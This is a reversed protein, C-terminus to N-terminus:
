VHTTIGKKLIDVVMGVHHKISEETLTDNVYDDMTLKNLMELLLTALMKADIDKRIRGKEQDVVIYKAYLDIAIKMSEHYKENKLLFDSAILKKGVKVLEPYDKMFSLGKLYIEYFRDIFPMDIEFNLLPGWYEFKKHAIYTYFYNYMDDKGEFYQYFSGRPIQADKIINNINIHEYSHIGMEKIIANMIREQKDKMLNFFTEKPM